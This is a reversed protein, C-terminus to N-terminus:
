ALDLIAGMVLETGEKIKKREDSFKSEGSWDANDNPIIYSVQFDNWWGEPDAEFSESTLVGDKNDFNGIISTLEGNLRDAKADEAAIGRCVKLIEKDDEDCVSLDNAHSNHGWILLTILPLTLLKKM